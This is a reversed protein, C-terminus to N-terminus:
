KVAEVLQEAVAQRAAERKNRLTTMKKYNSRVQKAADTHLWRAARRVISTHCHEHNTCWCVLYTDETISFLEGLVAPDGNVIKAWLWSRYQELTSGPKRDQRRFPNALASQTNLGRM